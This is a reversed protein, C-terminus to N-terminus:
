RPAWESCGAVQLKYRGRVFPAFSTVELRYVGNAALSQEILPLRGDTDDEFVLTEGRPSILYMVSDFNAEAVALRVRQGMRGEFLYVDTNHLDGRRGAQSSSTSLEGDLEAPCATILKPLGSTNSSAADLRLNLVFSGTQRPVATTAFVTYRGKLPLALTGSAPLRANLGGGSDDDEGLFLNGPGLLILYADLNRSDMQMSLGQGAEADFTFVKTFFPLPSNEMLCDTTALTTSVETGPTMAQAICKTNQRVLVQKGGIVVTASRQQGSENPLTRLKVVGSAKNNSPEGASIWSPADATTWPECTSSRAVQISITTAQEPLTLSSPFVTTSCGPVPNEATTWSLAYAQPGLVLEKATVVIKWKGAGPQRVAVQEVNDRLNEGAVADAEPRLPDLVFPLRTQGDPGVLKVDLDNMLQSARGAAAPPDTWALMVRLASSGGNLEFEFEKTEGSQLSETNWSDEEIVQLGKVGDPIGYGYSYDPGPNGLDNATNLLIARLLEPALPKGYKNRFRDILLASLGSIAPAAMSTGSLTRTTNRTSTSLVSVGLAVLDPKVRGDKTPGFSSFESMALGRDIAGVTILNKASAPPPLTYFGARAFMSCEYADRSNGTAFVIPFKEQFVIRDMEREFSTYASFFSCNDTDEGVVAGWSNQALDAQEMVKANLNASVGQSVTTFGFSILKAAPAMGRLRPDISGAAAVTGAVHTGHFGATGTRVLKLRDGFEPHLDVIEDIIAVKAGAGDLAFNDQLEKAKVMVSSEANSTTEFPPFVPEIFRVCDLAAITLLDDARVKVTLREFYDSREVVQGGLRDIEWQLEDASLDKHFYVMLELGAEGRLKLQAWLPARGELLEASLKKNQPIPVAFSAAAANREVSVIWEGDGLPEVLRMGQSSLSKEDVSRSAKVLLHLREAWLGSAFLSLLLIRYSM